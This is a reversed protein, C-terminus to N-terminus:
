AALRRRKAKRAEASLGGRIGHDLDPDALADALCSERVPCIGCLEYARKSSGGRSPFFVAIDEGACEAHRHWEPMARAIRALLASM